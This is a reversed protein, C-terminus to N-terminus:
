HAVGETQREQLVQRARQAIAKALTPGYGKLSAAYFILDQFEQRSMPDLGERYSIYRDLLVGSQAVSNQIYPDIRDALISSEDLFFNRPAAYELQEHNATNLPGPGILLPFRQESIRHHSLFSALSGIGLRALDDRVAPEAYRRVMAAFDVEIPDSSAVAVLNSLDDDGFVTIHPFVSGLTRFVLEVIADSQEYQQIWICFVGGPNLKGRAAEFFERTFLGGIGAVWPNTPESIIVDYRRPVARLFSQGDDLYVHVRSDDLVQYNADRFMFDANLVARSIEVIDAQEIPHRLAAGATIGSGHGIVLLSRAGPALFLPAHALLMQTDLDRGSSADPKGNVSLLLSDKSGAVLVTAHSDEDFYFLESNSERIVYTEKWATFSSAAHRDRAAVNLSPDPGSRLRLHNRGLNVPDLWGGATTLYIAAVALAGASALVRHSAPTNGAVLLLALGASFNLTLNFHFSGLLGLGPLLVLTTVVVGLVNGLTNWAYTSGVRTGVQEPRRVQIQAVLPFAFGMCTTPVLLVALCLSAKGLQYLEFGLPAGLLEIRLLGILYPLHSVLPTAALLAAMVAFQSMALLWLPRKVELRSIIASGITIGTIFCMLMVTFSYTSSGFSLAIVRTFLVEYAMAAFGSVALAGLTVVYQAENYRPPSPAKRGKQAATEISDIPRGATASAEHRVQKLVMLGAAFNMLSAAVLSQYIGLLPLTLFGTLGAGLVAGLSNLAYLGAVKRRTQQVEGVLHRALIPLTAGMLFAPIIIVLMALFFRLLLKLAASEFVYAALSIYGLGAVHLVLPILLCYGGIILELILYMRLPRESRDSRQGFLYSGLALGGMFIGLVVAQAHATAGVLQVLLKAWVVEHMLGAMGSLFFALFILRQPAVPTSGKTPM